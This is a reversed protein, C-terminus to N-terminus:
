KMEIRNREPTTGPTTGPTTKPTTKPTTPTIIAWRDPAQDARVRVHGRKMVPSWADAGVLGEPHSIVSLGAGGGRMAGRPMRSAPAPQQRISCAVGDPGRLHLGEPHGAAPPSMVLM